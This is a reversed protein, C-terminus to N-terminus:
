APCLVSGVLVLLSIYYLSIGPTLATRLITHGDRPYVPGDWVGIEHYIAQVHGKLARGVTIYYSDMGWLFLLAALFGAAIPANIEHLTLAPIMLISAIVKMVISYSEMRYMASDLIKAMGSDSKYKNKEETM